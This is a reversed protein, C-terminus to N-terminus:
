KLNLILDAGSHPPLSEADQSWWRTILAYYRHWFRKKSNTDKGNVCIELFHKRDLSEIINTRQQDHTVSGDDCYEIAPKAYGPLRQTAGFM